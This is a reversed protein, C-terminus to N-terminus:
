TLNELFYNYIDLKRLYKYITKKHVDRSFTNVILANIILRPFDPMMKLLLLFFSTLIM